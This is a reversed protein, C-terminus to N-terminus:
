PAALELVEDSGEWEGAIKSIKAGEERLGACTTEQHDMAYSPLFSAKERPRRVNSGLRDLELNMTVVFVPLPSAVTMLAKLPDRM